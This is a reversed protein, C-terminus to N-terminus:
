ESHLKAPTWRMNRRSLEHPVRSAGTEARLAQNRQLSRRKSERMRWVPRRDGLLSLLKEVIRVVAQTDLHCYDLFEEGTARVDEGTVRRDMMDGFATRCFKGARREGRSPEATKRSRWGWRTEPWVCRAIGKPSQNRRSLPQPLAPASTSGSPPDSRYGPPLRRQRLPQPRLGNTIPPRAPECSERESRGRARRKTGDDRPQFEPCYAPVSPAGEPTGGCLASTLGYIPIPPHSAPANTERFHKYPTGQGVSLVGVSKM